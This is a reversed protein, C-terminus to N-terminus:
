ATVPTLSTGTIWRGGATMVYKVSQGNVTRLCYGASTFEKGRPLPDGVKDADPGPSVRGYALDATVTWRESKQVYGTPRRVFNSRKFFHGAKTLFWEVGDVKVRCLDNSTTAQGTHMEISLMTEDRSTPQAYGHCPAVCVWRARTTGYMFRPFVFMHYGYDGGSGILGDGRHHYETEQDDAADSKTPDGDVLFHGHHPWSSSAFREWGPAGIKRFVKVRNKINFATLDFVGGGYHTTGSAKVTTNYSGQTMTVDVTEGGNAELRLLYNAVALIQKTLMNVTHGQYTTKTAASM